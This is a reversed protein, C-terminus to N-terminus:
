TLKKIKMSINVQTMVAVSAVNFVLVEGVNITPSWGTPALDQAKQASSIVIPDSGSILTTTGPFSSYAIKEVKINVNGALPAVASWGLIQYQFDYPGAYNGLSGTNIVQQGTGIVVQLNLTSPLLTSGNISVSSTNISSNVTSNGFFLSNNGLVSSGIVLSTSNIFAKVSSNGITIDSNTVVVNAGVKIQGLDAIFWNNVNIGTTQFDAM